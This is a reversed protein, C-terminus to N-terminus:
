AFVLAILEGLRLTVDVAVIVLFALLMRRDTIGAAKKAEAIRAYDAVVADAGVSKFEYTRVTM